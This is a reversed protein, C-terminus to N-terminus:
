SRHQLISRDRQLGGHVWDALVGQPTKGKSESIIELLRQQDATLRLVYRRKIQERLTESLEIQIEETDDVFETFDHTAWFDAEQEESDFTPIKVMTMEENKRYLRREKATMDRATIVRIVGHPKQEFVVFLYRGENSQGFAYIRSARGKRYYPRGVFTEEIEFRDVHHRSIHGENTDDWEFRGVKM